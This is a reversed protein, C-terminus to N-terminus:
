GVTKVPPKINQVIIHISSTNLVHTARVLAADARQTPRSGTVDYLLKEYTTM